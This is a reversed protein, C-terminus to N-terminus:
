KFNFFIHLFYLICNKDVGNSLSETSKSNFIPTLANLIADQSIVFKGSISFTAFVLIGIKSDVPADFIFSIEFATFSISFNWLLIQM